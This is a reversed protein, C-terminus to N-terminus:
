KSSIIIRERSFYNKEFWNLAHNVVEITGIKDGSLKKPRIFPVKLGYNECVKKIKLDDTSVIIQRKKFFRGSLKIRKNNKNISSLKAM